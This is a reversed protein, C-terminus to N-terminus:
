RKANLNVDKGCVSANDDLKDFSVHVGDKSDVHAVYCGIKDPNDLKLNRIKDANEKGVSQDLRSNIWNWSMQKGDLTDSLKSSGYKTDVILYEPEGNKRYYVGDIGQHTSDEVNKVRDTSIRDYGSTSLHKDVIIESKNGKEINSDDPRIMKEGSLIQNYEKNQEGLSKDFWGKMIERAELKTMGNEPKINRFDENGSRNVEHNDNYKIESM